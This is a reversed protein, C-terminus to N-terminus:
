SVGRCIGHPKWKGTRYSGSQADHGGTNYMGGPESGAVRGNLWHMGTRYAARTGNGPITAIVFATAVFATATFRRGDLM